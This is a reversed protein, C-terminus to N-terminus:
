CSQRHLLYQHVGNINWDPITWCYLNTLWSLIAKNLWQYKIAWIKYSLCIKNIFHTANLCGSALWIISLFTQLCLYLTVLIFLFSLLEFSGVELDIVGMILFLDVGLLLWLWLWSDIIVLFNCSLGLSSVDFFTILRM